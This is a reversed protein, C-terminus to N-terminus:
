CWWRLGLASTGSLKFGDQNVQVRRIAYELAFTFHLPSLADGQKLWGLLFCILCINPVRVRSHTEDLCKKKAKGTAHPYWVWHCDLVIGEKHRFCTKKLRYIAPASSCKIGTKRFYKVFASYVILLRGTTVFDANIIGLLKRAYQTLRSQLINSLM